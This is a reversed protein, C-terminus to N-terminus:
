QKSCEQNLLNNLPPNTYVSLDGKKYLTFLNSMELRGRESLNCTMRIEGAPFKPHRVVISYKHLCTNDENYGITEMERKVGEFNGVPLSCKFPMCKYIYYDSYENCSGLSPLKAKKEPIRTVPQTKIEDEAAFSISTITILILFLSKM